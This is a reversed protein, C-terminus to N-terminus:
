TCTGQGFRVHFKTGNPSTNYSIDAKNREAISNCIALGLGLANEKTSFFPMGIKDQHNLPIGSGQDEVTLVVRKNNLSTRITLQGEQMAQLGNSVIHVILQHVEKEDVYVLPIGHKLDLMIENGGLTAVQTLQPMLTMILYNLNELRRHGSRSRALLLLQEITTNAWRLEDIMLEFRDKFGSFEDKQSLLQLYGLVTAMPNRVEHAIGKAIQNLLNLQDLKLLALGQECPDIIVSDTTTPRSSLKQEELQVGWESTNLNLGVAVKGEIFENRFIM